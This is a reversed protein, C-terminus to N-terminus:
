SQSEHSPAQSHSHRFNTDCHMRNALAKESLYQQRRCIVISKRYQIVTSLNSANINKQILIKYIYFEGIGKIESNNIKM